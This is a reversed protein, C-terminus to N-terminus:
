ARSYPCVRRDSYPCRACTDKRSSPRPTRMRFWIEDLRLLDSLTRERNFSSIFVRGYRCGICLNREGSMCRRARDQLCYILALRTQRCDMGNDSLALAYLSAQFVDEPYAKRPLSRSPYKREVVIDVVPRDKIHMYVSDPIGAIRNVISQVPQEHFSLYRGLETEQGHQEVFSVPSMEVSTSKVIIERLNLIEMYETWALIVLIAVLLLTIISLVDM